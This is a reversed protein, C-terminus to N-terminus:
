AVEFTYISGNADHIEIVDMGPLDDLGIEMIGSSTDRTLSSSFVIAGENRVVVDIAEPGPVFSQATYDESGGIADIHIGEGISTWDAGDYDFYFVRHDGEGGSIGLLERVCELFPENAGSILVNLSEGIRGYDDRCTAAAAAEQDPETPTGGIGAFLVWTVTLLLLAAIVYGVQKRQKRNLRKRAM